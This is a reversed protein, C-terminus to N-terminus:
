YSKSFTLTSIDGPTSLDYVHTVGNRCFLMRTGDPTFIMSDSGPPTKVGAKYIYSAISLGAFLGVAGAIVLALFFLTAITVTM